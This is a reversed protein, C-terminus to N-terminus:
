YLGVEVLAITGDSRRVRAYQEFGSGHLMITIERFERLEFWGISQEPPRIVCSGNMSTAFISCRRRGHSVAPLQRRAIMYHIERESLSLYVACEEITFFRRNTADNISLARRVPAEVPQEIV